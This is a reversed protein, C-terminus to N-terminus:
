DSRAARLAIARRLYPIETVEYPRHNRRGRISHWFWLGELRFLRYGELLPVGGQIGTVYDLLTSVPPFWGQRRSLQTLLEVIQPHVRGDRLFGKGFHTGVIALGGERELQTQRTPSLLEIFEEVNDAFTSPFFANVGPTGATRYPIATTIKWLNLEDYTFSRVYRLHQQALDGWYYRSEKRHGEGRQEHRGGAAAYLWRWFRFRFRDAGWYLNDCNHGHAAYATPYSGLNQRYVEFARHIEARESSEMRAGHFAIEFGREQLHRVYRAYESDDLTASGEYESSGQYPLPWVSKTTRFGLRDLLEYIPRIYELTAVDTDDFISFAFKKGDPFAILPQSTMPDFSVGYEPAAASHSCIIAGPM